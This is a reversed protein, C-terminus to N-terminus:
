RRRSTDTNKSLAKSTRSNPSNLDAAIVGAAETYVARKAQDRAIMVIEDRSVSQVEYDQPNGTNVIKISPVSGGGMGGARQQAPTQVTVREGAGVPQLFKDQGNYSGPVIIDTGEAAPTLIAGGGTPDGALGTMSNGATGIGSGGFAGGFAGGLANMITRLITLRIVMRTVDAIISSAFSRFNFKGTTVFTVLADEVHSFASSLGSRVTSSVNNLDQQISLMGSKFADPISKTADLAKIKAETIASSYQEWNIKGQALLQNAATIVDNLDRQPKITDTYIKDLQSQVESLQRTAELKGRLADLEAPSYANGARRAALSRNLLDVEVERQPGILGFLKLQSTLQLNEDAREKAAQTTIVLGSQKVANEAQAETVVKGALDLATRRQTLEARQASSRANILQIDIANIQAQKQAEPIYTSISRSLANTAEQLQQLDGVKRRLADNDAAQNVLNLEDQLKRLEAAAPAATDVVGKIAQSTKNLAADDAKATADASGQLQQALLADRQRQLDKITKLLNARVPDASNMGNANSFEAAIRANLASVQQDIPIAGGLGRDIGRGVVTFYNSAATTIADWARGLQTTSQENTALAAPLKDLAIKIGEQAKGQAILSKVTRLTTADLFNLQGNLAEIGKIPDSFTKVLTKQTEEFDMGLTHSLDKSLAIIKSINEAGVQGTRGLANAMGVAQSISIHGANAAAAALDNFQDTTLGLSRGAGNVVSGTEATLNLWRQWAFALIGIAIVVTGIAAVTPNILGILSGFALKFAGALGGPGTAAYTLHNLQQAMVQTIPVGTALQEVSGRIAHQMAMAQTTMAQHAHANNNLADEAQKLKAIFPAAEATLGLQAARYALTEAKSKGYTEATSKISNLLKNEAEAAAITKAIGLDKVANSAQLQETYIKQTAMQSRLSNTLTDVQAKLDNTPSSSLLKLQDKLQKVADSGDRAAKAISAIKAQIGADVKDTVEVIIPGDDAM